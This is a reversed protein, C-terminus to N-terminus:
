DLESRSVYFAGKKSIRFNKELAPLLEPAVSDKKVWLLNISPNHGRLGQRFGLLFGVLTSPIKNCNSLDIVWNTANPFAELVRNAHNLTKTIFYNESLDPVICIVCNDVRLFTFDANSSFDDPLIESQGLLIRELARGWPPITRSRGLKLAVLANCMLRLQYEGFLSRPDGPMPSPDIRNVVLELLRTTLWDPTRLDIKGSDYKSIDFNLLGSIM